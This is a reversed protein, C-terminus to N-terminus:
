GLAEAVSVRLQALAFREAWEAADEDTLTPFLELYADGCANLCANTTCTALRRRLAAFANDPFAVVDAM